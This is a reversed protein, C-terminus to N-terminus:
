NLRTIRTKSTADMTMGTGGASTDVVVKQDLEIKRLMGRETDWVYAGNYFSDKLQFMAAGGGTQTAPEIHGTLSITADGGRFSKVTHITTIKFNGLLGSNVSDENTWKDGLNVRPSGKKINFISGIADAFGQGSLGTNGGQLGGGLGNGMGLADLSTLNGGGSVMSTNGDKDVTFTLVTAALARLSPALPNDGDKSAPKSSDFDVTEADKGTGSTQTMSVHQVSLEINASGDDAVSAVKLLLGIEQKSTQKRPGDSVAPISIKSNSDLDMRLRIHDGKRFKPRLDIKKSSDAERNREPQDKRDPSSDKKTPENERIPTRQPKSPREKTPEPEKAPPTAPQDQAATSPLPMALCIGLTLAFMPRLTNM